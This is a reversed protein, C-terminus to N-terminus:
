ENVLRHRIAYRTLSAVDHIGLKEMINRRHAEVTRPSAAFVEAIEKTPRGEAIM